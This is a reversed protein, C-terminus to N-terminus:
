TPQVLVSTEIATASICLTTLGFCYVSYQKEILGPEAYCTPLVLVHYMQEDM